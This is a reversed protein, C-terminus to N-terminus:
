DKANFAISIREGDFMFAPVEHEINAPFVILTGERAAIPLIGNPLHLLLPATRPPMSLYYVGSWANEGGRHSRVHDHLLISDNSRMVNAWADIQWAGAPLAGRVYRGLAQAEPRGLFDKPGSWGSGVGLKSGETERRAIAVAALLADRHQRADAWVDVRIM